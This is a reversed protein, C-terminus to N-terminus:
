KIPENSLFWSVSRLSLLSLKLLMCGELMWNYGVFCSCVITLHLSYSSFHFGQVEFSTTMTADLKIGVFGHSVIKTTKGVTVFVNKPSRGPKRSSRTLSGGNILSISPPAFM